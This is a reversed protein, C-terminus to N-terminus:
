SSHLKITGSVGVSLNLTFGDVTMATAWLTVALNGAPQFVVTYSASPMAVAFSVEKTSELATVSVNGNRTTKRPIGGSRGM